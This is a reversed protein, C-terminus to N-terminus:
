DNSLMLGFWIGLGIVFYEGLEGKTLAQKTNNVVTPEYTGPDLFIPTFYHKRGVTYVANVRLYGDAVEQGQIVSGANYVQEVLGIGERGVNYEFHLDQNVRYHRVEGPM